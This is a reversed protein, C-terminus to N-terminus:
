KEETNETIEANENKKAAKMAKKYEKKAKRAAKREQWHTNNRLCLRVIIVIVAIIVGWIIFYPINAVFWVFFNEAGVWIDYINDSFDSQIRQWVTEQETATIRKVEYVSLNVTSYDVLNDYTRLQSQYSELQYRVETIRQELLIITDINEAEALLELLRDYETQLSKIRAETDVYTLTIDRADEYSYTVNGLGGVTNVFENLKDSPIRCVFDANRNSTYNYSNGSVSSSEIYGGLASVEKKVAAVFDDFELAEVTLDFTRILKRAGTYTPDAASSASSDSVSDFVEETVAEEMPEEVMYDMENWYGGDFSGTFSDMAAKSSCGAFALMLVLALAIIRFKKM